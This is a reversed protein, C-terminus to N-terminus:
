LTEVPGIKERKELAEKHELGRTYASRATEGIYEDGCTNCRIEQTVGQRNCEGKEETRCLMCNSKDCEPQKCPDSRQLLEKITTGSKKVVKIAFVQRKIEQRYKRQLESGLTAPLLSSQNM